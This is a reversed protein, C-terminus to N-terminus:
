AACPLGALRRRVAELAYGETLRPACYAGPRRPAHPYLADYEAANQFRRRSDDDVFSESPAGEALIVDHDALEVHYYSVGAGSRDQVITEGNLLLRAPVLCGDLVMAHDPSVLLDRRPLGQGLSGARFRVPRLHPNAAVFRAAYSRRGIWEVRRDLGAATLVGGGISLTEITQEGSPTAIRTGAAYCAVLETGGTGDTTYGLGTFAGTVDLAALTDGSSDVVTVSPGSVEVAAVKSLALGSLDIFDGLDFGVISSDLGSTLTPADSASFALLGGIGSFSITAPAASSGVLVRGATEITITGTTNGDLLAGTDDLSGTVDLAGSGLTLSGATLTDNAAIKLDPKATPTATDDVTLSAVTDSPENFQVTYGTTFIGLGNSLVVTSGSGPVADDSWNLADNWSTSGDQATWIPTTAATTAGGVASNAQILGAGGTTANGTSIASQDLLYTVQVTTLRADAQLMLLSVAAASPAAASTGYFTNLSSVSTSEGDVGAFNPKGDDIPTALTTGSANIYTEGPGASTFSETAPAAGNDTAPTDDINVAAVTNAGTVLEHGISAGSGIGANSDGSFNATSDQYFIIKFEGPTVPANNKTGSEYIVLYYTGATFNSITDNAGLSLYPNGNIANVTYNEVLTYTTGSLSYIALGLDYTNKGDPQDWQLAFDLTAVGSGSTSINVPEYPSNGGVNNVLVKQATVGPLAMDLPTITTFNAEYYNNSDNGAATFYDVNKAVAAEVAATVLGTDQYFSEDGYAVDDVIVNVGDAVLTNIGTAFDSESDVATYFYIEAGPAISYIIQAMARGEDDTDSSGGPGDKVIDIQSAAPLLGNATDSAEGGYVNFSNSLIGIKLGAGNLTGGTAATYNTRAKDVALAVVASATGSASAIAESETDNDNGVILAQSAVTAAPQAAPTTATQAPTEGTAAAASTAAPGPAPGHKASHAPAPKEVGYIWPDTVAALSGDDTSDQYLGTPHDSLTHTKM